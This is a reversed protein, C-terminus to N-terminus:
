AALRQETQSASNLHRATISGELLGLGQLGPLHDVRRDIRQAAALGVRGSMLYRAVHQTEAPPMVTSGVPNWFRRLAFRAISRARRSAALRRHAQSAYFDIHRGEQRMIRKLLGSLVPHGARRALQAYGAQTTWENVAGWAMHVAVFDEGILASGAMMTLPRLRETWGLRRRMAAVRTQGAPEGHAQLVAALVEGHWFEEYVWFSLFSTIEADAHAPGVLLDRLYCVTHYEVDHMYRLCRLAGTQLPQAAFRGLDLDDWRLRDTGRKYAEIDFEMGSSRLPLGNPICQSMPERYSASWFFQISTGWCRSATM